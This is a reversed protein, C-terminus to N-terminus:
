YIIRKKKNKEMILYLIVMSYELYILGTNEQFVAGSYSQYTVFIFATWVLAFRYNSFLVFVVLPTIYWPHVTASFFYHIAYIWFLRSLFVKDSQQVKGWFSLGLILAVEVGSLIKRLYVYWDLRLLDKVWEKNQFYDEQFEWLWWYENIVYYRLFYYLSANFEFHAFYLAASEKTKQLLELDYFPLFCVLTGIGVLISYQWAKRWRLRSFFLPLFFLPLLKAAIALTFAGASWNLKHKLLLYVALLMFFILTYETHLNGSLEIIILPNFAYLFFLNLPRKQNELIKKLLVFTGIEFGLVTLHMIALHGFINSPFLFGGWAFILQMVPPYVSYYNPSNIKPFLEVLFSKTAIETPIYRYPNIGHALLRGDWIYRWFDDSLLPMAGVWLLRLVIALYFYKKWEFVIKNKQIQQWAYVYVGFLFSYVGMLFLFDTRPIVYAILLYGVISLAALIPEKKM